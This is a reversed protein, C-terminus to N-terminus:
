GPFGCVFFHYLESLSGRWDPVFQTKRDIVLDEVLFTKMGTKEAILDEGTDNGIMLCKHPDVQLLKAIELYYEPHPKCYHMIEYSTILAYPFGGIGAWDMRMEIAQLPFVSNTAMAVKVGKNFAEKMIKEALPYRGCHDKLLPFRHDYFFRFFNQAEAYDYKWNKQFDDWFKEENTMSGDCAKIMVETSALVRQVIEKGPLGHQEASKAMEKLYHKLFHSIEVNLMTGDLDFLLAEFM